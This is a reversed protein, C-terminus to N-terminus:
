QNKLHFTSLPFRDQITQKYSYDGQQFLYLLDVLQFELERFLRFFSGIRFQLITHKVLLKINRIRVNKEIQVIDVTTSKKKLMEIIANDILVNNEFGALSNRLKSSAQTASKRWYVLGMPILLIDGELAIRKKAYVDGSIFRSPFGGIKKLAETQFVTEALGNLAPTVNALYTWNIIEPRPLLQPLSVFSLEKVYAGWVSVATPYYRLYEWVNRLTHHYMADDGDVFLIYKGSARELVSNRNPYEGLNVENKWAVIRPDTYTSIIEWSEDTSCDDAILYEFDVFSSALVSEIAERVWLSSNYTITVVTFFPM